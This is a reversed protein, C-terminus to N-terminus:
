LSKLTPFLPTLSPYLMRRLEAESSSSHVLTKANSLGASLRQQSQQLRHLPYLSLLLSILSWLEIGTAHTLLVTTLKKDFCNIGLRQHCYVEM